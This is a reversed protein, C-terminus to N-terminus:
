RRTTVLISGHSCHPLYSIFPRSNVRNGSATQSDQTSGPDKILFDADDVNDLILVWKGKGEDSLWEYVLQLINAAPDRRGPIKVRDAIDRFSQEFRAASSAHVWFVWTTSPSQERTRYAYEIAPQSKSLNDNAINLM